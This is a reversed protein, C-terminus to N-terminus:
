EAPFAAFSPISAIGSQLAVQRGSHDTALHVVIAEPFSQALDNVHTPENDFAAVVAGLERVKAHAAAKFADDSEDLTPKMVLYVPRGNGPPLPFGHRAFSTMTGARMGEHRGTLYVVQAGARAIESTFFPAGAIPVDLQCYDSTFFRESWFDKLIPFIQEIRDASLGLKAMPARLDWGEWHEPRAQLLEPVGHATAFDVFIKAQRPRNDLLTSDLDFIVVPLNRGRRVVDLVQALISGSEAM